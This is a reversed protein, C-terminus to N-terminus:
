LINFFFLSMTESMHAVKIQFCAALWCFFTSRYMLDLACRNLPFFFVRFTSSHFPSILNFSDADLRLKWSSILPWTRENGSQLRKLHNLSVRYLQKLHTRVSQTGFYDSQWSQAESHNKTLLFDLNVTLKIILVNPFTKNFQFTPLPM